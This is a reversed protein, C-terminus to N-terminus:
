TTTIYATLRPTNHHDTHTTIATQTIHPHTQLTTEIETPEIRFGRIKIQTDTRGTYHLQGTPTWHATDGTRYLRTGPPGYPNPIFHTATNTPQNLYGHALGHGALYLEGTTGIPTPQLHTDLIYAHKNTLPTGIPITTPPTTTPTITHTTTFGMSEAPGYGNTITLHPHTQQLQHTHTPSAPEGGTYTTHTHQFTHPHEDTLYNFLSSSLQLMTIPHHTTLHTIHTPEPKQGPQLITTGGHLLAGWFELSFADWSVPSCQLFTETPGFTAYTQHTLTSILNHHSSLVGKPRGTSGSTFMVCAVDVPTVRLGPNDTRHRGITERETDVQIVSWPGSIRGSRATDTILTTIHADTATTTLREDPFDPDLVAYGAGTKVIALLTVAFDIGRELLVGALDGRRLGSDTLHHALQNAQENLQGYTLTHENFIVAPHEPRTRAQEEFLDGLSREPIEVSTDNWTRLVLEREAADLL